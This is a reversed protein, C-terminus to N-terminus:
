PKVAPCTPFAGALRLLASAEQLALRARLRANPTVSRRLAEGARRVAAARSRVEPSIPHTAGAGYGTPADAAELMARGPIDDIDDDDYRITREGPGIPEFPYPESWPLDDPPQGDRATEATGGDAGLTWELVVSLGVDLPRLRISYAPTTRLADRQIASWGAVRIRPLWDATTSHGVSTPLACLASLGLQPILSSCHM